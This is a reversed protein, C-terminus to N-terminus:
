RRRREDKDVYRFREDTSRAERKSTSNASDIVVESIDKTITNVCKACFRGTSIETGCKECQLGFTGGPEVELRGARLFEIIKKADIGTNEVVQSINAGPEKDLYDKVKKFDEEDRKRCNPCIPKGDYRYISGCKRCNRIDM